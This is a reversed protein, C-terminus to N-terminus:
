WVGLVIIVVKNPLHFNSKNHNSKVITYIENFIIARKNWGTVIFIIDVWRTLRTFTIASAGSTVSQNPKKRENSRTLKSNYESVIENM